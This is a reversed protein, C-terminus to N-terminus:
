YVNGEKDETFRFRMSERRGYAQYIAGELLNWDLDQGITLSSGINLMQKKSYHKLYYYYLRQAATPPYVQYGSRMKRM